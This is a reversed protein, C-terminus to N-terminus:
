RVRWIRGTGDVGASALFRGDPSFSLTSVFQTHGVLPDGIPAFTQLDWLQTGAEPHEGPDARGPELRGGSSRTAACWCSPNREARVTFWSAPTSADSFWCPILVLAWTWGAPTSRM